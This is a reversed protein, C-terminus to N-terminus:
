PSDGITPRHTDTAPQYPTGALPLPLGCSAVLRGTIRQYFTMNKGGLKVNLTGTISSGEFHWAAEGTTGHGGVCRLTYSVGGDSLVADALQCDQLSVDHLVPFSASLDGTDLCRREQRTAYRLNEALHPMSTEITLDYLNNEAPVAPVVQVAFMFLQAACLKRSYRALRGCREAQAPRESGCDRSPVM